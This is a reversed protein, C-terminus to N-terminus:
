SGIFRLVIAHERVVYKQIKEDTSMPESYSANEALMELISRETVRNTFPHCAYQPAAGSLRLIGNEVLAGSVDLGEKTNMWCVATGSPLARWLPDIDKQPIRHHDSDNGIFKVLRHKIKSNEFQSLIFGTFTENFKDEGLSLAMATTIAFQPMFACDLSWNEIHNYFAMIAKYPSCSSKHTLACNSKKRDPVIEWYESDYENKELPNGFQLKGSHIKVLAKELSAAFNVPLNMFELDMLIMTLPDLKGSPTHAYIKSINLVTQFNFIATLTSDNLEGDNPHSINYGADILANQIIRIHSGKDGKLARIKGAAILNLTHNESFRPNKLGKNMLSKSIKVSGGESDFIEILCTDDIVRGLQLQFVFENKDNQSLKCTFINKIPNTNAGSPYLIGINESRAFTVRLFATNPLLTGNESTIVFTPTNGRSDMGKTETEALNVWQYTIPLSGTNWAIQVGRTIPKSAVPSETTM